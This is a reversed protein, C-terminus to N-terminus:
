ILIWYNHFLEWNLAEGEFVYRLRHQTGSKMYTWYLVTYGIYLAFM